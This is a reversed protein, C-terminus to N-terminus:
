RWELGEKVSQISRSFIEACLKKLYNQRSIIKKPRVTFLIATMKQQKRMYRVCHRGVDIVKGYNRIWPGESIISLPKV